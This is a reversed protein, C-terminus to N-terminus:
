EGAEVLRKLQAIFTQISGREKERVVGLATLLPVSVMQSFMVLAPAMAWTSKVEQNYLYRVELTIPRIM